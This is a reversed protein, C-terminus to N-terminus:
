HQPRTAARKRWMVYPLVLLTALLLYLVVTAGLLPEDPFNAKAIALAIAPHRSATSLALVTRETDVPGGLVHGVGLGALVFATLALLTGGGILTWVVPLTAPLVALVALLLLGTALLSLPHAVRDAFAPMLKRAAMGLVLPLLVMVLVIRAIGTPSMAFPRHFAWGMLHASLPVVVIALLAMIAMLGVAYAANGGARSEKGPLLPPIPAIALAVLVIEVAHRLDFAIVIALAVLPMIVSIALISRVLLWPRRFLLAVQHADVKLGLGLVILFISAQLALLIAHQLTM